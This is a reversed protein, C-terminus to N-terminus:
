NKQSRTRFTMGIRIIIFRMKSINTPLGDPSFQEFITYYSLALEFGYASGTALYLALEPSLSFGDATSNLDNYSIFNYGGAVGPEIRIKEDRLINYAVIGNIAYFTAKSAGRLNTSSTIGKVKLIEGGLAYSLNNATYQRVRFRLSPRGDFSERFAPDYDPVPYNISINIDVFEGSPQAKLSQLPLMTATLFAFRLM